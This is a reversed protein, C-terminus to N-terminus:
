MWTYRVAKCPAWLHVKATLSQQSMNKVSFSSTCHSPSVTKSIQILRRAMVRNV